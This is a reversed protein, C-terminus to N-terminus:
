RAHARSPRNAFGHNMLAKVEANGASKTATGPVPRPQSPKRTGRPFVAFGESPRLSVNRLPIRDPASRPNREVRNNAESRGVLIRSPTLARALTCNVPTHTLEVVDTMNNNNRVRCSTMCLAAVRSMPLCDELAVRRPSTRGDQLAAM